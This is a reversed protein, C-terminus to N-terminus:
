FGDFYCTRKGFAYVLSVGTLVYWDKNNPNNFNLTNIDTQNGELNDKGTYNFRTEFTVGLKHAIRFKYGIGFPFSINTANKYDRFNSAIQSPPIRYSYVAANLFVYPTHIFKFQNLNYKFFNFEFGLAFEKISNTFKFPINKIVDNSSESNDASLQAYTFSYRLAAQPSMNWKYILGISVDNPNIYDSNGVEGIYNSGGLFIGIENIQSRSTITFLILVSFVFRKKM